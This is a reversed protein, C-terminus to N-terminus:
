KKAKIGLVDWFLATFNGHTFSFVFAITVPILFYWGGKATASLIQTESAFLLAYLVVTALGYLIAKTVQRGAGSPATSAM